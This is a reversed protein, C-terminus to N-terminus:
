KRRRLRRLTLVGIVGIALVIGALHDPESLLHLLAAFWDHGHDGPHAQAAGAASLLGLLAVAALSRRAPSSLARITSPRELPHANRASLPPYRM